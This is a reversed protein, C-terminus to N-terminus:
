VRLKSYKVSLLDRRTIDLLSKRRGLYEDVSKIDCFKVGAFMLFHELDRNTRFASMVRIIKDGGWDKIIISKFRPYFTKYALSM